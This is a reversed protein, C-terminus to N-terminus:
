THDTQFLANVVIISASVSFTETLLLFFTVWVRETSQLTFAGRQVEFLYLSCSIM